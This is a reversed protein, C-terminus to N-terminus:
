SKLDRTEIKPNRTQRRTNPARHRPILTQHEHNLTETRGLEIGASLKRLTSDSPAPSVWVHYLKVIGKHSDDPHTLANGLKGDNTILLLGESKYDLRGIPFIWSGAHTCEIRTGQSGSVYVHVCVCARVCARM